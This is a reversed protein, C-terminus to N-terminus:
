KGRQMTNKSKTCNSFKWKDISNPKNSSLLLYSLYSGIFFRTSFQPLVMLCKIKWTAVVTGNLWYRNKHAICEDLLIDLFRDNILQVILRMIWIFPYIQVSTFNKYYSRENPRQVYLVTPAERRNLINGVRVIIGANRSSYRSRFRLDVADAFIHASCATSLDSQSLGTGVSPLM